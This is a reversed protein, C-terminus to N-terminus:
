AYVVKDLRLRASIVGPADNRSSNFIDTRRSAPILRASVGLLCCNASFSMEMLLKTYSSTERKASGFVAIVEGARFFFPVFLTRPV